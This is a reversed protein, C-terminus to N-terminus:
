KKDMRGEGSIAWAPLSKKEKRMSERPREREM